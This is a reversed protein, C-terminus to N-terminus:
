PVVPLKRHFESQQAYLDLMHSAQLEIWLGSGLLSFGVDQNKVLLILFLDM